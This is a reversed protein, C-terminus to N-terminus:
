YILIIDGDVGGSATGGSQASINGLGSPKGTIGTWAVSSATAANGSINTQDGTNTGSLNTASLAGTFTAGSLPAYPALNQDGTNTGTLNTATVTGNFSSNHNDDLVLTPGFGGGVGTRLIMWGGAPTGTHPADIYLKNDSFYEAFNQATAGSGQPTLLLQAGAGMVISSTNINGFTSNSSAFIGGAFTADGTASISLRLAADTYFNLPAAGVTGINLSTTSTTFMEAQNAVFTAGVAFTTLGIQANQVGNASSGVTLARGIGPTNMAVNGTFTAGALAAYLAPNFTAALVASAAAATASATAATVDADALLRDAHTAAEDGVISAASAAAATASAAANTAFTGAAAAYSGALSAATSANTAQTTAMTAKTTATTASASAATASAAAATASDAAATAQDTANGVITDVDAALQAPAEINYTNGLSDSLPYKGDSSPGGGVTGALWTQLQGMFTRWSNVLDSIKQALQANTINSVVPM